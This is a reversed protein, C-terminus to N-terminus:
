WFDMSGLALKLSGRELFPSCVYVCLFLSLFICIYMYTRLNSIYGSFILAVVKVGLVTFSYKKRCPYFKVILEVNKGSKVSLHEANAMELLVRLVKLWDM